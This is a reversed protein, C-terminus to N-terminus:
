ARARRARLGRLHGAQARRAGLPPRGPDDRAATCLAAVVTTVLIWAAREDARRRDRARTGPLARRASSSRRQWRPHLLAVRRPVPLQARAPHRDGVGRRRDGALQPRRPGERTQGRRAQLLALADHRVRHRRPRDDPAHLRRTAIGLSAIATGTVVGLIQVARGAREGARGAAGPRPGPHLGPVPGPRLELQVPPAVVFAAIALVTNSTAIGILFVLDLMTGILIYPKRRGFRTITYDSISGVTPQVIIAIIVGAAQVVASRRTSSTRTRSSSRSGSRSSSARHGPLRRGPRALLGVAPRAPQAAVLRRRATRRGHTEIRRMPEAM